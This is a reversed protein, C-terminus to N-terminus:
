RSTLTASSHRCWHASRPAQMPLPRTPDKVNTFQFTTPRLLPETSLACPSTHGHGMRQSACGGQRLVLPKFLFLIRDLERATMKGPDEVVAGPPTPDQALELIIKLNKRLYDGYGRLAHLQNRLHQQLQQRMMTRGASPLMPVCAHMCKPTRARQMCRHM